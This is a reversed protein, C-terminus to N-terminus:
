ISLIAAKENENEHKCKSQKTEVQLWKKAHNKAPIKTQLNGCSKRQKMAM